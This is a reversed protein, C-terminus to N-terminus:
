RLYQNEFVIKGEADYTDTEVGLKIVASYHKDLGQLQHLEKTWKGTAILLLGTAMPDLTGAHGVKINRVQYKKNLLYRIKNVVDFSTWGKPKNILLLSGSTFDVANLDQAFPLM